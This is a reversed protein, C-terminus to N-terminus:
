HKTLKQKLLIKVAYKQSSDDKAEFLFVQGFAGEGLMHNTARYNKRIATSADSFTKVVKKKLKEAGEKGHRTGLMSPTNFISIADMKRQKNQSKSPKPGGASCCGM